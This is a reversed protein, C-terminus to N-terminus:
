ALRERAFSIFWDLAAPNKMADRSAAKEAPIGTIIKRVPIEMKKGTLTYPVDDVQLISDPVHRPSCDERLRSIIRARLGDDLDLGPKLKVFLPMFHGDEPMECCVILSDEVEPVHDVARYIEATGIRVGHRNLTSDSRGYIFCGGRQNVKLFDGHRWVNDFHEFYSEHYRKGGEDNWFFIPMSPFPSTVVLEGVQDVLERGEDDWAHVDMGLLRTQIEGAYVPLTPSAGVFGSCIETGGSQSTLWLDRKVAEYFWAFTEPTAPSGSLLITTLRSLDFKEGPRLGHQRMIQVFAPSAGFCTAGSETAIAWLRDPGPHVPSGDYLVAAAGALLSALLINWMMWGTTSYFFQCGGPGLGIHFSLIKLHELLVGVHSHAIAKPLGTTGSSFVVWLPHDHAVREFRFDDRAMEPGSMVTQWTLAGPVPPSQADSHLYPLWIVKRLDPLQEIIHLIEGSRDFDKGGFRYGDALFLVQPRIQSFREVVTQVGFEPAASSWVAGVAASAMMAVATEPINPMYAVVRDGPRVGNQRLWEALKRMQAGLERWTMRAMPRLESLHHFVVEDSDGHRLMHEAYNVLSGEFWRTGFTPGRSVVRRCPLDSMIGFYDWLAGWFGEIDEVSWRWLADYDDFRLGRERELWAMLKTVNSSRVFDEGPTWLLDGEQIM